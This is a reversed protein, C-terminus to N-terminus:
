VEVHKLSALQGDDVLIYMYWIDCICMTVEQHHAVQLGLVHVPVTVSCVSSLLPKPPRPTAHQGRTGLNAPEFGALAMPNRLAFLDEAHRGESAFYLQRDWTASKHCTFSGEFPMSDNTSLIVPWKEGVTGGKGALPERTTPM